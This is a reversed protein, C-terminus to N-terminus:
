TRRCGSCHNQSCWRQFVRGQCGQGRGSPYRCARGNKYAKEHKTHSRTVEHVFFRVFLQSFVPGLAPVRGAQAHRDNGLVLHVADFPQQLTNGEGVFDHHHIRAAGVASLGEAAAPPGGDDIVRPQAIRGLFLECQLLRPALPHEAEVGIFGEGFPQLGLDPRRECGRRRIHRAKGHGPQGEIEPTPNAVAAPIGVALDPQDTPSPSPPASNFRVVLQFHVAPHHLERLRDEVGDIPVDGVLQGGDVAKGVDRGPLFPASRTEVHKGAQAM